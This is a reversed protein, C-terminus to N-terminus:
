QFSFKSPAFAARVFYRLDDMSHDDTKLPKDETSKEDWRYLGFERICDRCGECIFIDGLQLHTAVERIGSLVMNSAGEVRFRRHRRIVEIFSAASPDVIVRSVPLAGALLELQEYHEEDTRQLGERRSDFYYERIRYWKGMSRGWLGASTPNITGYDVSLYYDDYPRPADAVVHFAKNFMTYVLGEAVTWLGRIYRDYFVGSYMNEYRQRIQLSLSPNDDMTFHLHLMNRKAAKQVWELYFWHGPSEPNCNFWLKSGAVSCRACAQEVFSRPMLAVEDLLIGALTIGQILAYSSEDRGGFLYYTNTKGGASVVMKNESRYESVKFIGELWTPIHVVVNRRLSEITRGCIAFSEGDFASMSWLVFGVAMSITKGSRISGDCIIGDLMEFRPNTWWTMTLKQRKSFSRYEMM